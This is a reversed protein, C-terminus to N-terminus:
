IELFFTHCRPSGGGPLRGWGPGREGGERPSQAGGWGVGVGAVPRLIVSPKQSLMIMVVACPTTLRSCAITLIHGRVAPNGPCPRERAKSQGDLCPVLNGQGPRQIQLEDRSAPTYPSMGPVQPATDWCPGQPGSPATNETGARNELSGTWETFGKFGEADTLSTNVQMYCVGNGLKVLCPKANRPLAPCSSFPTM